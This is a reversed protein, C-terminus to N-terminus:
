RLSPLNNGDVEALARLLAATAVGASFFDFCADTRKNCEVGQNQQLQITAPRRAPVKEWV